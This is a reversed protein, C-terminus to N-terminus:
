AYGDPLSFALPVRPRPSIFLYKLSARPSMGRSPVASFGQVASGGQGQLLSPSSDRTLQKRQLILGVSRYSLESKAPPAHPSKRRKLDIRRDRLYAAGRAASKRLSRVADTGDRGDFMPSYPIPAPRLAAFSRPPGLSLPIGLLSRLPVPRYVFM